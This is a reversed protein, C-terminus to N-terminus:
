QFVKIPKSTPQAQELGKVQVGSQDWKSMIEAIGALENGPQITVSKGASAMDAKDNTISNDKGFNFISKATNALNKTANSITETMSKKEMQKMAKAIETIYKASDKLNKSNNGLEILPNFANSLDVKGMREMSDALMPLGSSDENTFKSIGKSIYKMGEAFTKTGQLYADDFAGMEAMNAMNKMTDGTVLDAINKIDQLVGKFGTESSLMDHADSLTKKPDGSFLGKVLGVAGGPCISKMVSLLDDLFKAVTMLKQTGEEVAEKSINATKDILDVVDKLAGTIMPMQAMVEGSSASAGLMENSIALMMAAFGGNGDAGLMIYNFNQQAKDIMQQATMKDNGLTAAKGIIDVLMGLSQVIPTISTSMVKLAIAGRIGMDKAAAGLAITMDIVPKLMTSWDFTEIDVKNNTKKLVDYKMSAAKSVTEVISAMISTIPSLLLAVAGANLAELKGISGFEHMVQKVAGFAASVEAIKGSKDITLQPLVYDKGAFTVKGGKGSGLISLLSIIKTMDGMSSAILSASVAVVLAAPAVLLAAPSLLAFAGFFTAMMALGAIGTLIRGFVGGTTQKEGFNYKIGMVSVEGGQLSAILIGLGGGFAALGVGMLLSAVSLVAFAAIGSSALVSLGIMAATFGIFLAVGGIAAKVGIAPLKIHLFSIGVDTANGSVVGAVLAMSVAFVALSTSLLISTVAFKKFDGAFKNALVSLGVMAGIFGIFLGVGGLAAALNIKTHLIPIDKSTITCEVISLALTFAILSASLILTAQGFEKFSDANNGAIVSIIAMAGIFATFLGLAPLIQAKDVKINLPGIQIGAGFINTAVAMSIAFVGLSAALSISAKAFGQIDGSEDSKKLLKAVLAFGLIFTGFAALGLMAYGVNIPGLFPIAKGSFIASALYLSVAFVGMSASLMISAKAFGALDKATDDKSMLKALGIMGLIFTTFAVMGLIAKGWDVFNFILTAGAFALLAVGLSAIGGVGELLGSFFGSIGKKEKKDKDGLIQKLQDSIVAFGIGQAFPLDKLLDVKANPGTPTKKQKGQLKDASDETQFGVIGTVNEILQALADSINEGHGVLATSNESAIDNDSMVQNLTTSFWSQEGGLSSKISDLSEAVSATNESIGQMSDLSNEQFDSNDASLKADLKSSDAAM